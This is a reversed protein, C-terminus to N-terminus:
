SGLDKCEFKATIQQKFKMIAEQTTGAIVLDDVYVALIIYESRDENFRVYICQETKLRTMKLELRLFNDLTENWERPSQKLGYLTKNLMQVMGKAANPYGAPPDIYVDDKLTANLFAVDVDVDM